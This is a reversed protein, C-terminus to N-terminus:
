VGAAPCSSSAGGVASVASSYKSGVCLAESLAESAGQQHCPRTSYARVRPLSDGSSGWYPMLTLRMDDSLMATGKHGFCLGAPRQLRLQRQLINESAKM